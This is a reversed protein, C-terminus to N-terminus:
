RCKVDGRDIQRGVLAGGVGGALTGLTNGGILKALAAGGLAGIVLATSGDSRRCYARGGKGRYIRDNRGLRRDKYQGRRYSQSPEWNRDQDGRWQYRNDARQDGRSQQRQNNRNDHHQAAAPITAITMSAALAALIGALHKM